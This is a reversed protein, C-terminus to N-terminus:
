GNTKEKIIRSIEEVVEDITMNTSDVVVADDAKKLPHLDRHSDKYDREKLGDLVEQYTQTNLGKEENQKFRRRAREEPTADLYIKVEANPFVYTGIDRGEIVWDGNQSLKRQIDDAYTRVEEIACVSSVNSDIRPKRISESVDKDNMKVVLKGENDEMKIEIKKLNDTVQEIDKWNVGHELFYLTVTRYIAGTDMTSYGNRQSLLKAVTGKGSGAPGDIAIIM